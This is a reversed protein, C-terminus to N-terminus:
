QLTSKAVISLMHNSAELRSAHVTKARTRGGVTHLVTAYQAPYLRIIEEKGAYECTWTSENVLRWYRVPDLRSLDQRFAGATSYRCAPDSAVAKRIIRKLKEPVYGQFGVVDAINEGDQMSKRAQSLRTHFAYQNNAARLLTLGMGFIDTAVSFGAGAVTEPPIYPGYLLDSVIRGTEQHQAAGFDSLKATEGALMINDATVDRHIIRNRHVWGLGALAQRCYAISQAVPVFKRALLDALSGDPMYEMAMIFTTGCDYTKIIRVINEHSCTKQFTAEHQPSHEAFQTATLKLVVEENNRRNRVRFLEGTRGYGLRYRGRLHHLKPPANLHFRRHLILQRIRQACPPCRAQRLLHLQM